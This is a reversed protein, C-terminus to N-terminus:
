KGAGGIKTMMRLKILSCRENRGAPEKYCYYHDEDVVFLHTENDLDIGKDCLNCPEHLIQKM